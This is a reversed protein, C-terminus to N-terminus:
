KEIQLQENNEVQEGVVASGKLNNLELKIESLQVEMNAITVTKLIHLETKTAALEIKTATLETKLDVMETQLNRELIEVRQKLEADDKLKKMLKECAECCWDKNKIESDVGVCQFHYWKGCEDCQVMELNDDKSGAAENEDTDNSDESDEETDSETDSVFVENTYEDDDPEDFNGQDYEVPDNLDVYSEDGRLPDDEFDSNVEPESCLPDEYGQEDSSYTANFDIQDEYFNDFEAYSEEESSDHRRKNRM